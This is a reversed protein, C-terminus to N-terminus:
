REYVWGWLNNWVMNLKIDVGEEVKSVINIVDGQVQHDVKPKVLVDIRTYKFKLIENKM